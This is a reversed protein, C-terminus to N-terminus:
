TDRKASGPLLLTDVPRAPVEVSATTEAQGEADTRSWPRGNSAELGALPDISHRAMVDPRDSVADMVGTDEVTVDREWVDMDPVVVAATPESTPWSAPAQEILWGGVNTDEVVPSEVWAEIAPPEVEPAPLAGPLQADFWSVLSADNGLEEGALRGILIDLELESRPLEYEAVPGPAFVSGPAEVASPSQPDPVSLWEPETSGPESVTMGSPESEFWGSVGLEEPLPEGVPVGFDPEREPTTEAAEAEVLPEVEEPFSELAALEDERDAELQTDVFAWAPLEPQEDRELDLSFPTGPLSADFWNALEPQDPLPEGALLDFDPEEVPEPEVHDELPALAAPQDEFWATPLEPWVQPVPEGLPEEAVPPAPAELVPEEVPPAEPEPQADFWSAPLEPWVEALPEEALVAEAAPALPEPAEVVPEPEPEWVQELESVVPISELPAAQEETAVEEVSWAGIAPVPEYSPSPVQIPAEVPARMVSDALVLPPPLRVQPQYYRPPLGAGYHAEGRLSAWELASVILWGLLMVGAIVLRNLHAVTVSVALAVLILVEVAFRSSRREFM